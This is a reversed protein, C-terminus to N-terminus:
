FQLDTLVHKIEFVKGGSSKFVTPVNAIAKMMVFNVSGALTKIVSVDTGIIPFHIRFRETATIPCFYRVIRNQLSIM